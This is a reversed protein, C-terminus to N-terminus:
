LEDDGKLLTVTMESKVDAEIAVPQKKDTYPLLIKACEIKIKEETGKKNMLGILYEKPRIQGNEEIAEVLDKDRKNPQGKVRGGTKKRAVM